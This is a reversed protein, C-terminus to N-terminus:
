KGRKPHSEKIINVMPFCSRKRIRDTREEALSTMGSEKMLLSCPYDSNLTFKPTKRFTDTGLLDTNYNESLTENSKHSSKFM